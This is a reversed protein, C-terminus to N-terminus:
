VSDILKQGCDPVVSLLLLGFVFSAAGGLFRKQRLALIGGILLVISLVASLIALTSLPNLM